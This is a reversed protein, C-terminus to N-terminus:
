GDRNTTSLLLEGSDAPISNEASHGSNHGSLRSLAKLVASNPHSLESLLGYTDKHTM